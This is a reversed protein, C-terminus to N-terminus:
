PVRQARVRFFRNTTTTGYTGPLAATWNVLDTSAELIINVPGGADAPVVVATNPTFSDSPTDIELTCIASGFMTPATLRYPVSLWFTAPGVVRPLTTVTENSQVHTVTVGAATVGLKGLYQPTGGEMSFGVYVVKAVQGTGVVFSSNANTASWTVNTSGQAPLALLIALWWLNKRKMTRRESAIANRVRGVQQKSM